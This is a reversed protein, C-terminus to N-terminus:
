ELCDLAHFLRYPHAVILENLSRKDAELFFDNETGKVAFALAAKIGAKTMGNELLRSVRVECRKALVKSWLNPAVVSFWVPNDDVMEELTLRHTYPYPREATSFGNPYIDRAAEIIEEQTFGNKRLAELITNV